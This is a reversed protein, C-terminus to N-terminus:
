QANGPRKAKFTEKEENQYGMQPTYIQIIDIEKRKENWWKEVSMEDMENWKMRGQSPADPM